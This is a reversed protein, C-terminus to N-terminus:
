VSLKEKIHKVYEKLINIDSVASLIRSGVVDEIENFLFTGDMGILFDIGVMDFQFHSTIKQVTKIEEENLNYWCASGGLKFNARFDNLSERLVAGIIEGGVIFVRVDKGHQVNCTQLIMDSAAITKLCKLWAQENKILYVQKGGRGATDKMVFPYPLPPQDAAEQRKVFVTNTMPVALENIHYHTLAKDNCIRAIYSSNFIKIGCAELHMSLLPEITRVVAFDPKSKTEGRYYVARENNFIGITLEERLVLELKLEASWAEEIFWDIYSRNKNADSSSYILWGRKM